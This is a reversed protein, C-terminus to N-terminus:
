SAYTKRATDIGNQAKEAVKDVKDTLKDAKEEAMKKGTNVLDSLKDLVEDANEMLKERYEKGKDTMLLGIVAAAGAGILLGALLKNAM